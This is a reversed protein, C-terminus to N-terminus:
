QQPDSIASKWQMTRCPVTWYPESKNKGWQTCYRTSKETGGWNLNWAFPVTVLVHHTFEASWQNTPSFRWRKRWQVQPVLRLVSRSSKYWCLWRLISRLQKSHACREKLLGFFQQKTTQQPLVTTGRTSLWTPYGALTHHLSASNFRKWSDSCYLRHLYLSVHINGGM